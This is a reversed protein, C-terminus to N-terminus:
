PLYLTDKESMRINEVLVVPPKEKDDMDGMYIKDIDTEPVHELMILGTGSSADYTGSANSGPIYAYFDDEMMDDPVPIVVVHARKLEFTLSKREGAKLAVDAKWSMMTKSPSIVEICYMGASLESQFEGQRNTEAELPPNPGNDMMPNYKDTLISVKAGSVLQGNMTVTGELRATDVDTGGASICGTVSAAVAVLAIFLVAKSPKIM